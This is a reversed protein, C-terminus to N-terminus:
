HERIVYWRLNKARSHVKLVRKVAVFVYNVALTFSFRLRLVADKSEFSQELFSSSFLRGKRRARRIKKWPPSVGTTSIGTPSPTAEPSWSPRSGPRPRKHQRGQSDRPRFDRNTKTKIM